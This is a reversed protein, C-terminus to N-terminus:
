NLAFFAELAAKRQTESLQGDADIRPDWKPDDGIAHLSYYHFGILEFLEMMDSLYQAAEADPAHRSVAFEGVVLDVNHKKAWKQAKTLGAKWFGTNTGKKVQGKKKGKKIIVQATGKKCSSSNSPYHYVTTGDQNAFDPCPYFNVGYIVPGVSSLLLADRLKNPNAYESNMILPKDSNYERIVNAIAQAFEPWELVGAPSSAGVPPESLLEFGIILDMYASQTVRTMIRRWGELFTQQLSANCFVAAQPFPPLETGCDGFRKPPTHHDIVLKIGLSEFFPFLDELYDLQDELAELYEAETEDNAGEARSLQYRVMNVGMEAADQIASIAVGAPMNVGRYETEALAQGSSFALLCGLVVKQITHNRIIM